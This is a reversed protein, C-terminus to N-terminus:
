QSLPTISFRWRQKDFMLTFRQSRQDTGDQFHATLGYDLEILEMPSDDLFMGLLEKIDPRTAEWDRASMQPAGSEIVEYRMPSRQPPREVHPLADFNLSFRGNKSPIPEFQIATPVRGTLHQITFAIPAPHKKWAEPGETGEYNVGLLPRNDSLANEAKIRKARQEDWALRSAIFFAVAAAAWWAWQTHVLGKEGSFFDPFILPVVALIISLTATLKGVWYRYMDEIFWKFGKFWAM